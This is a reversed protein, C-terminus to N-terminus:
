RGAATPPPRVLGRRVILAAASSGQVEEIAVSPVRSTRVAGRHTQIAGDRVIEFTVGAGAQADRIYRDLAYRTAITKDPAVPTGNIKLVRDGERLGASAATGGVEVDHLVFRGDGDAGLRAGLSRRAESNDVLRLGARALGARLSVGSGDAIPSLAAVPIGLAEAASAWVLQPDYGDIPTGRQLYRILDDLGYRGRSDGRIAVDVVFATLAGGVVQRAVSEPRAPDAVLSAPVIQDSGGHAQWWSVLEAMSDYFARAGGVGYRAPLLRAYYEAVGEMWWGDAAPAPRGVDPRVLGRPGFQGPYWAHVYHHLLVTGLGTDRARESAIRPLVYASSTAQGSAGLGSAGPEVFEISFLYREYAPAGFFRVGHEITETVLALLSDPRFGPEAGEVVVEHPRGAVFLKYDRIRDGLAFATGPLAAYDPGGFRQGGNPKLPTFVRWGTPLDFSVTIPRAQHGALTGFLDAGLAHGGRSGLRARGAPPGNSGTPVVYGLTIYATGSPYLRWRSPGLRRMTLPRGHGDRVSFNEIPRPEAAPSSGPRWGPLVFDVSDEEVQDVAMSVDYLGSGPDAIRVYYNVPTDPTAREPLPVSACAALGSAAVAGALARLPFHSRM